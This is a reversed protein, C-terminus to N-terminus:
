LKSGCNDTMGIVSDFGRHTRMGLSAELLLYPPHLGLAEGKIGSAENTTIEKMPTLHEKFDRIFKKPKFKRMRISLGTKM